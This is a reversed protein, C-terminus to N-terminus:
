ATRRLAAAREALLLDRQDQCARLDERTETLQRQLRRREDQLVGLAHRLSLLETRSIPVCLRSM